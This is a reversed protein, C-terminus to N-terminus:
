SSLRRAEEEAAGDKDRQALDYSTEEGEIWKLVTPAASLLAVIIIFAFPAGFLAAVPGGPSAVWLFLTVAATLVGVLSYFRRNGSRRKRTQEALFQTVEKSIL